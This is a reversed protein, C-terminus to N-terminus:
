FTFYFSDRRLAFAWAQATRDPALLRIIACTYNGDPLSQAIIANFSPYWAHLFSRVSIDPCILRYEQLLWVMM